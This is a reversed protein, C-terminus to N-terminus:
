CKIIALFQFFKTELVASLTPNAHTKPVMNAWAGEAM